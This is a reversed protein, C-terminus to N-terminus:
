GKRSEGRYCCPTLYACGHNPLTPVDVSNTAIPLSAPKGAIQPHIRRPPSPLIIHMRDIFKHDNQLPPHFELDLASDQMWPVAVLQENRGSGHM